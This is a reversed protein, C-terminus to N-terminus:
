CMTLKDCVYHVWHLGQSCYVGRSIVNRNCKVCKASTTENKCSKQEQTLHIANESNNVKPKSGEIEGENSSSTSHTQKIKTLQEYLMENMSKLNIRNGNLTVSQIVEHIRPIDTDIFQHVNKGM